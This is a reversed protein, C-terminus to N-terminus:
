ARRGFPPPRISASQLCIHMVLSRFASTPRKFQTCAIRSRTERRGPSSPRAINRVSADYTTGTVHPVRADYGGQREQRAARLAEAHRISRRVSARAIREGPELGHFSKAGRGRYDITFCSRSLEVTPLEMAHSPPAHAVSM